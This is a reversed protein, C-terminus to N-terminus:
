TKTIKRLSMNVSEIANTTYIVKRIDAPYDFFPTLRSWSRRWSQGIPAFSADWKGEFGTLRLLVGDQTAASYILRM